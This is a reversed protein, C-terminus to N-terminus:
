FDSYFVGTLAISLIVLFVEASKLRSALNVEDGAYFLPLPM